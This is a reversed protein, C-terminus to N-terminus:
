IIVGGTSYTVKYKTTVVPTEPQCSTVAFTGLAVLASITVVSLFRKKM